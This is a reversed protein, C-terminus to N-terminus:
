RVAMELLDRLASPAVTTLGALAPREHGAAVVIRVGRELGARWAALDAAREVRVALTEALPRGGAALLPRVRAAVAAPEVTGDLLLHVRVPAAADFARAAAALFVAALELEAAGGVPVALATDPAPAAAPATGAPAFPVRAAPDFGRGIAAAADGRPGGDARDALAAPNHSAEVAFRHAFADDCRVVAYGAARLRLVLDAIGRRTPGYAPDLGGVAHLAERALAVVPTGAEDLPECERAREQARREALGRMTSLDTYSADRAGEGGPAGAVAPFAAGLAPVRAFAARLREVSGPTLLVDDAVLVVLDGRAAGLARNAAATLLPDAADTELAVHPYAAFLRRATQAGAACIGVLEDQARSEALLADFATKTVEPASAALFAFSTTARAPLPRPEFAFGPARVARRLGAAAAALSRLAEALTAGAPEVHQPFRGAGILVCDGELAAADPAALAVFPASELTEVLADLAAADPLRAAHAVLVNRDGRVRLEARLAAAPDGVARVAPALERARRAALEAGEGHLLITLPPAARRIRVRRGGELRLEREIGVRRVAPPLRHRGVLDPRAESVARLAALRGRDDLTAPPATCAFSPRCIVALGAARARACLEVLAAVPEAPLEELLLTRAVLLMGPAVVDVPGRVLADAGAEGLPAVIPVLEFPLPGGPAPALMWGFHREGAAQAAGGLVGVGGELAARLGGFAAPLPTADPALLLLYPEAAARAAAAVAAPDAAVAVRTARGRAPSPDSGPAALIAFEM